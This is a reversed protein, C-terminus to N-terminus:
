FLLAYLIVLFVLFGFGGAIGIVLKQSPTLGAPPPPAKPAEEGEGEEGEDEEGKAAKAEEEAKAAKAAKAEEEAKAAKAEEAKAAEPHPASPKPIKSQPRAEVVPEAAPGMKEEFEAGMPDSFSLKTTGMLIDDRDRLRREENARLREGNIIIGNRSGLDRITVGSTPDRRIIAHERSINEDHIPFDCHPSRGLTCDTYMGVIEFEREGTHPGAMVILKPPADEHGQAGGLVNKIMDLAIMTTNETSETKYAAAGSNFSIVYNVIQIRDGNRLLKQDRPALREGNFSTGNRSGLDHLVFNEGQRVIRVHQGSVASNPLEVHNGPARGIFIEESEHEELRIDQPTHYRDGADVPNVVTLRVVM